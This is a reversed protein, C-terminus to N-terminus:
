SYQRPNRAANAISLVTEHKEIAKATQLAGERAKSPNLEREAEDFTKQAQVTALNLEDEADKLKRAARKIEPDINSTSARRSEAVTLERYARQMERSWSNKAKEVERELAKTATEIASRLKIKNLDAAWSWPWWQKTEELLRKAEIVARLTPVSGEAIGDM